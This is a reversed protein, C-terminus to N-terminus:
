NSKPSHPRPSAPAPAPTLLASAAAELPTPSPAASAAPAASAVPASLVAAARSYAPVPACGGYLPVAPKAYIDVYPTWLCAFSIYDGTHRQIGTIRAYKHYQACHGAAIRPAYPEVQCSWPILGGTDNGAWIPDQALAGSVPLLVTIGAIFFVSAAKM